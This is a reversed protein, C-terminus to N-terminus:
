LQVMKKYKSGEEVARGDELVSGIVLYTTKSSVASTVKAGAAVALDMARERDIGMNGSFVITTGSLNKEGKDTGEEKVVDGEEKKLVDGHEKTTYTLPHPRNFFDAVKQKKVVSKNPSINRKSM